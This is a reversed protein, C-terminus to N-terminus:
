DWNALVKRTSYEISLFDELSPEPLCKECNVRGTDRSTMVSVKGCKALGPRGWELHTDPMTTSRESDGCPANRKM